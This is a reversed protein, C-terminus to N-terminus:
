KVIRLMNNFVQKLWTEYSILSVQFSKFIDIM